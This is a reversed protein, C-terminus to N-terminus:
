EYVIVIREQKGVYVIIAQFKFSALESAQRPYMMRSSTLSQSRAKRIINDGNTLLRACGWKIGHRAILKMKRM